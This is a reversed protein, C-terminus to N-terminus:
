SNELEPPDPHEAKELAAATVKALENRQAQLDEVQQIMGDMRSNVLVHVQEIRETSRRSLVATVITGLLTLGATIMIVLQGSSFLNGVLHAHATMAM